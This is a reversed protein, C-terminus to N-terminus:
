AHKITGRISEIEVSTEAKDRGLLTLALAMLPGAVVLLVFLAGALEALPGTFRGAPEGGLRMGLKLLGALMFLAAPLLVLFAIMGTERDVRSTLRQWAGSVMERLTQLNM